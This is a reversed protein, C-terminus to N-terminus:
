KNIKSLHKVFSCSFKSCMGHAVTQVATGILASGKKSFSSVCTSLSSFGSDTMVGCNKGCTSFRESNGVAFRLVHIDQSEYPDYRDEFEHLMTSKSEHDRYSHNQRRDKRRFNRDVQGRRHKSQEHYRGKSFDPSQSINKRSREMDNNSRYNSVRDKFHDNSRKRNPSRSHYERDHRGRDSGNEGELHDCHWSSDGKHRKLHEVSEDEFRASRVNPSHSQKKYSFAQKRGDEHLSCENKRPGVVDTSIDHLLSPESSFKGAQEADKVLSGIGGAQTIIEMHEEIIDRMVQIPTRKLKKGRYSMRRRKYDREEALLEERTKTKNIEQNRSQQWFLGDHELLPRYNSRKQRAEDARKTLHEHEVMRQYGSLQQGNRIAKIKEELLSREHLSAVAAAVQSVFIVNGNISEDLIGGGENDNVDQLPHSNPAKEVVPFLSSNRLGNLIWQKLMNLAFLKGKKEGYLVSFQCSLWTLVEFLIPCKFDMAVPRLDKVDTTFVLSALGIAERVIAKSCLRFLLVMHDRMYLDIVVGYNPSNMIVWILFNSEGAMSSCLIARLVSYSYNTPYDNWAEIERRVFWLESPLFRLREVPFKKINNIGSRGFNFCEVSLTGPLTFTRSVSDQDTSPVAGPCYLYFFNQAFDLYEDLSFCLEVTSDHLTQVFRNKKILEESSQLTNPYRLSELSLLEINVGRGPSSSCRLSHLFLSEPPVRHHFNFPCSCLDNDSEDNITYLSLTSLSDITTESFRILDKLTSLVAPLDPSSASLLVPSAVPNANNVNTISSPLGQNCFHSNFFNPTPNPNTPSPRFSLSTPSPGSFFPPNM